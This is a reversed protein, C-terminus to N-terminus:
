WIQLLDSYCDVDHEEVVRDEVVEGLRQADGCLEVGEPVVRSDFHWWFATLEQAQLFVRAAFLYLLLRMSRMSLESGLRDVTDM